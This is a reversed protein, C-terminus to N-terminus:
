LTLDLGEAMALVRGTSDLAFAESAMDKKAIKRIYTNRKIDFILIHKEDSM